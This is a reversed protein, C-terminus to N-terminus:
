ARLRVGPIRALAAVMRDLIAAVEADSLTRATDQLLFRFALSKEKTELGKGRYEDFLKINKVVSAAPDAALAQVIAARLDAASMAVPVVLAIDRIAPPFKSVEGPAPIRRALTAELDLEGLVDLM